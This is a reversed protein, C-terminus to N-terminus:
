FIGKPLKFVHAVLCYPAVPSVQSKWQDWLPFSVLPLMRLLFRCQVAGSMVVLLMIRYQGFAGTHCLRSSSYAVDRTAWHSHECPSLRKQQCIYNESLKALRFCFLWFWQGKSSILLASPESPSVPSLLEEIGFPCFLSSATPVTLVVIVFCWKQHTSNVVLLPDGTHTEPLGTVQRHSPLDGESLEEGQEEVRGSRWSAVTHGDRGACM